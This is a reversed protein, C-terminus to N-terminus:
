PVSRTLAGRYEIKHHPQITVDVVLTEYGPASIEIHHPGATLDLHQFHGDFDDVIGAYYGDVYVDGNRPEVNLRISGHSWNTSRTLRMDTAPIRGSPVSVTATGTGRTVLGTRGIKQM